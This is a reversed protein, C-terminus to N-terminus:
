ELTRHLTFQLHVSHFIQDPIAMEEEAAISGDVALKQFRQLQGCQFGREPAPRKASMRIEERILLSGNLLVV